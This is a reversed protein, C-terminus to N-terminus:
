TRGAKPRSVFLKSVTHRRIVKYIVKYLHDPHKLLFIARILRIRFDARVCRRRLYEPDFEPTRIMGSGYISTARGLNSPSMERILYGHDQVVKALETGPLPTALNIFPYCNYSGYLKVAFNLTDNINKKTEGPFGVVFFCAMPIGHKKALRAAREISNLDIRKKIINNVVGQDGSEAAIVLNVCGSKKMNELLDDNLTDARVGNPTDWSLRVGESILRRCIENARNRNFTFNDDEIHLHCVGYKESLCKIHNMTYEVSHARWRYGMSIHISCFTCTYPCGRSTIISAAHFKDDRASLGQSQLEFLREFDVLSYAPLPLADLDTISEVPNARIEGDEDRWMLGPIAAFAPRNNGEIASVLRPLSLEGEGAVVFHVQPYAELIERGSVTAHPGGLVVTCRPLTERVLKILGLANEWQASFPCSVGVIDPEEALLMSRVGHPEVGLFTVDKGSILRTQPSVLCDFVSV